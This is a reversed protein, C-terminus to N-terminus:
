LINGRNTDGLPSVLIVLGLHAETSKDLKKRINQALGSAELNGVSAFVAVLLTTDHDSSSTNDAM